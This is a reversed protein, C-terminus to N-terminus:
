PTAQRSGEEKAKEIIKQVSGKSHVARIQSNSELVREAAERMEPDVQRKEDGCDTSADWDPKGGYRAEGKSKRGAGGESGRGVDSGLMSQGDLGDELAADARLEEDEDVTEFESALAGKFADQEKKLKGARDQMVRLCDRFELDDIYKEFDLNEAFAALDAAEAEEFDEKEKATMAWQPKAKASAKAAKEARRQASLNPGMAEPDPPPRNEMMHRVAERHSSFVEQMKKKKEETVRDEEEVQVKDENMQGQLEKLWRVHRRLAASPGRAKVEQRAQTKCPTLGIQEGHTASITSRFPMPGHAGEGGLLKSSPEDMPRNCLMVGKFNGLGGVPPPAASFAGGDKLPDTM